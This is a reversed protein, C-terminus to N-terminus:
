ILKGDANLLSAEDDCGSIVIFGSSNYVQQECTAIGRRAFTDGAANKDYAKKEYAEM